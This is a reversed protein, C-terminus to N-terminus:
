DAPGSRRHFVGVWTQPGAAHLPHPGPTLSV